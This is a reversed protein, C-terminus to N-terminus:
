GKNINKQVTKVVRKHKSYSTWCTADSGLESITYKMAEFTEKDKDFEVYKFVVDDWMKPITVLKEGVKVVRESM